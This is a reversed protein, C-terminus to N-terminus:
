NQSCLSFIKWLLLHCGILNVGHSLLTDINDGKTHRWGDGIHNLM